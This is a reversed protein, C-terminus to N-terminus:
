HGQHLSLHRFTWAGGRGTDAGPPVRGGGGEAGERVRPLNKKQLIKSCIDAMM